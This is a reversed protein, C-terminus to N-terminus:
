LNLYKKMMAIMVGVFIAQALVALGSTMWMVRELSRLRVNTEKRVEACEMLHSALVGEASEQNTELAALREGTPRPM